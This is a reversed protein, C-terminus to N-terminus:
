HDALTLFNEKVHNRWRLNGLSYGEAVFKACSLSNFGTNLAIDAGGLLEFFAHSVGPDIKSDTISVNGFRHLDENFKMTFILQLPLTM